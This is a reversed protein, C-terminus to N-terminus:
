ILSIFISVWMIKYSVCSPISSKQFPLLTGTNDTEDIQAMYNDAASSVCYDYTEGVILLSRSLDDAYGSGPTLTDGCVEELYYYYSPAYAMMKGTKDKRQIAFAEECESSDVFQVYIFGEVQTVKVDLPM